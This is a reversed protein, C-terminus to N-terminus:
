FFQVLKFDDEDKYCIVNYTASFTESGAIGESDWKMTVDACIMDEDSQRIIIDEFSYGRVQEIDTQFYLDINQLDEKLLHGSEIKKIMEVADDKEIEGGYFRGLIDTRLSILEKVTEKEGFSSAFVFSVTAAAIIVFILIIKIGRSKKRM